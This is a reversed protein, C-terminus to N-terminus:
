VMWLVFGLSVLAFELLAICFTFCVFGFGVFGCVFLWRGLTFVTGLVCGLGM